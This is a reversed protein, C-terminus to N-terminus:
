ELIFKRPNEAVGNVRVEYHLHPGTSRGTTGVAAVRAGRKVREGAKVYISSLHAYRTNVGNGHDLVVVKGYGNETGAFVVTADSPAQVPHGPATAIDLGRHMMREATYPDVRVGYDSTVWGRAPWVAPTSALLRRQADFYDHIERLSSEQRAASLALASLGTDAVLIPEGASGVREKAPVDAGARPGGASTRAPAGRAGPAPAARAGAPAARVDAAPSARAGAAPAVAGEKATSTGEKVTPSSPPAPAREAGAPATASRLSDDLRDVRDLTASIQAVRAEVARLQSRLHANEERLAADEPIRRLVAVHHAVAAAGVVAIASGLLVAARLWGRSLHFKRVTESADGVVIVTFRQARSDAAM